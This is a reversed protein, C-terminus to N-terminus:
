DDGSLLLCVPSSSWGLPVEALKRLARVKDLSARVNAADVLYDGGEDGAVVWWLRRQHALAVAGEATLCPVRCRDQRAFQEFLSGIARASWEVKM